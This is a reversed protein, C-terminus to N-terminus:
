KKLRKEIENIRDDLRKRAKEDTSNEEPARISQGEFINPEPNDRGLTENYLQRNTEYADKFISEATIDLDGNILSGLTDQIRSVEAQTDFNKSTLGLVKILQTTLHRINPELKGVANVVDPPFGSKQFADALGYIPAETSNAGAGVILKGSIGKREGPRGIKAVLERLKTFNGRGNNKADAFKNSFDQYNIRFQSKDNYINNRLFNESNIRNERIKLADKPTLKIGGNSTPAKLRDINNRDKGLEYDQALKQKKLELEQNGQRQDLLTKTPDKGLTEILAALEQSDQPLKSLVNLRQQEQKQMLKNKNYNTLYNNAIDTLSSGINPTYYPNQNQNYYKDTPLETTATALNAGFDQNSQNKNAILERLIDIYNPTQNNITM